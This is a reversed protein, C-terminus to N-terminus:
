TSPYVSLEININSKAIRELCESSLPITLTYSDYYIGIRLVPDSFELRSRLASLLSGIDNLFQDILASLERRDGVWEDDRSVVCGWGLSSKDEISYGEAICCNIKKLVVDFELDTFALEIDYSCLWNKKPFDSVPM